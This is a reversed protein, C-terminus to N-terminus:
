QSWAPPPFRHKLPRCHSNRRRQRRKLRMYSDRRVQVTAGVPALPEVLLTHVPLCPCPGVMPNETTTEMKSITFPIGMDGADLFAARVQHGLLCRATAVPLITLSQQLYTLSCCEYNSFRDRFVAIHRPVNGTGATGESGESVLGSWFAAVAAARSPKKNPTAANCPRPDNHWPTRLVIFVAQYEHGVLCRFM